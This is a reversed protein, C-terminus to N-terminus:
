SVDMADNFDCDLKVEDCIDRLIDSDYHNPLDKQAGLGKLLESAHKTSNTLKRQDDDVIIYLAYFNWNTTYCIELM